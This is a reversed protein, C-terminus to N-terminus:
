WEKVKQLLAGFRSTAAPKVVPSQSHPQWSAEPIAANNQFEGVTAWQASAGTSDPSGSFNQAERVALTALLQQREREENTTASSALDEHVRALNTWGLQSQSKGLSTRFAEQAARLGGMEFLLVGLDNACVANGPNVAMASRYLVLGRTQGIGVRQTGAQPVTSELKGLAHLAESGAVSFGIAQEIQSQAFSCYLDIAQTPSTNVINEPAILQTKHSRIKLELLGQGGRESRLLVLDNLEDLATLAQFFRNQHGSQDARNHSNAIMVLALVFEEKAAHFARRRALSEGYQIHERARIEVKPNVQRKVLVPQHLASVVSASASRPDIEIEAWNAKRVQKDVRPSQTPANIRPVPIASATHVPAAHAPAAHAPVTQVPATQVPAVDPATQTPATQVPATHEAAVDDLVPMEMVPYDVETGILTDPEAPELQPLESQFDVQQVTAMSRQPLMSTAMKKAQFAEAESFRSSDNLVERQGFQQLPQPEVARQNRLSSSSSADTAAPNSDVAPVRPQSYGTSVYSPQGGDFGPNQYPQGAVSEINARIDQQPASNRSWPLNSYNASTDPGLPRDVPAAENLSHSNTKETQIVVYQVPPAFFSRFIGGEFVVSLVLTVGSVVIMAGLVKQIHSEKM